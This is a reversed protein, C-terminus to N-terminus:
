LGVCQTKHGLVVPDHHRLYQRDAIGRVVDIHELRGTIRDRHVVGMGTDLSDSMPDGRGVVVM